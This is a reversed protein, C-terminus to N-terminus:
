RINSNNYSSVMMDSPKTYASSYLYINHSKNNQTFSKVLNEKSSVWCDGESKNFDQVDFYINKIYGCSSSRRRTQDDESIANILEEKISRGTFNGRITQTLNNTQNHRIQVSSM